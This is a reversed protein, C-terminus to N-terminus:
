SHHGSLNDKVASITRELYSTNTKLNLASIRRCLAGQCIRVSQSERSDM